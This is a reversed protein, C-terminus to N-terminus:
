DIGVSGVISRVLDESTLRRLRADPDLVLRHALVPSALRKVDDPLVYDRGEVAAAARAASTLALSARTSAGLLVSDHNRTRQAIEVVYGAVAEDVHVSAVVDMARRLENSDTVADIMSASRLGSRVLHREEETTLYGLRSTLMFRDVQAEPLPFTGEFEIPNQTALVVFPDPMPHSVGDVTVQEELMAELLAAQTRPTARNIEDALVVGAFVPGPRFEFSATARDYVNVGTIDNPLLDPTCQIRGFELGLSAALSRAVLTKGTGPVDEVLVHGRGLVATVLLALETRKGVVVREMSAVVRAALDAVAAVDTM